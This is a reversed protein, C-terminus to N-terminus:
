MLCNGFGLYFRSAITSAINKLLIPPLLDPGGASKENLKKLIKLVGATTFNIGNLSVNDPVRSKIDPMINNDLTFVSSFFDNFCNAQTVPDSILNGLGDRLAGIGSKCSLKQNAYKYFNGIKNAHVIDIEIDAYHKNITLRCERAIEKYKMELVYSKNAQWAKWLIRKRSLLKNIHEPYSKHWSTAPTQNIKIAYKDVSSFIINTFNSWVKELDDTDFITFWNIFKLDDCILKLNDKDFKYKPLASMPSAPPLYVLNFSISNHDSTSFPPGVEVGSVAFDDNVFVLDLVHDGRTPSNVYQTFGNEIMVDHFKNLKRNSPLNFDGCVITTSNCPLINSTEFFNLFDIIVDDNLSPPVYCAVLRYKVPSGLLDICLLEIDNIKHNIPVLSAKLFNRYFICVGGGVRNERDARLISYDSNNLLISSQISLNLWTECMILIDYKM